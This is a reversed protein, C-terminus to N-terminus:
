IDSRLEKVFPYSPYIFQKTRGEVHECTATDWRAEALCKAVTGKKEEGYIKEYVKTGARRRATTSHLRSSYNVIVDKFSVQCMLM